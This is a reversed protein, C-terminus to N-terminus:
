AGRQAKGQIHRGSLFCVFLFVFQLERRIKQKTKGKENQTMTNGEVGPLHEFRSGSAEDPKHRQGGGGGVGSAFPVLEPSYPRNGLLVPEPALAGPSLGQRGGSPSADTFCTVTPNVSLITPLTM